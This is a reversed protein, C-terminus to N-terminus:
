SSIVSDKIVESILVLDDSSLWDFLVGERAFENVVDVVVAFPILM